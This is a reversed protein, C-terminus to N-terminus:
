STLGATILKHTDLAIKEVKWAPTPQYAREPSQSGKRLLAFQQDVLARAQSPSDAFVTVNQMLSEGNDGSVNRSLVYIAGNM